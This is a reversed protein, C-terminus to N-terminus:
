GEFFLRVPACYVGSISRSKYFNCPPSGHSISQLFLELFFDRALPAASYISLATHEPETERMPRAAFHRCLSSGHSKSEIRLGAFLYRQCRPHQTDDTYNGEADARKGHAKQGLNPRFGGTHKKDMPG